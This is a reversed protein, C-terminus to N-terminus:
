EARHTFIRILSPLERDKPLQKELQAVDVQLGAMEAQIKSLQGARLRAADLKQNLSAVNLQDQEIIKGLPAYVLSYYAYLIVGVLGFAAVAIALNRNKLPM